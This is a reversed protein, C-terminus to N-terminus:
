LDMTAIRGGVEGERSLPGEAIRKNLTRLIEEYGEGPEREAQASIRGHLARVADFKAAAIKYAASETDGRGGVLNSFTQPPKLLYPLAYELAPPSLIALHGHEPTAITTPLLMDPKTSWNATIVALLCDIAALALDKLAVTDAHTAIDKWFRKNHALYNFYLSRAAAAETQRAIDNNDAELSSPASIRIEKSPGHFITALTNLVDPHTQRSPLWALPSGEWQVTTEGAPLLAKRPLSAMLHLDHKPSDAHAWRASLMDLARRLQDNVQKPMQSALFHEPYASAYTGIYNAAPGYLFMAELPDAATGPPQLYIVASRAQLGQTIMYRLAQSEAPAALGTASTKTSRLLESYFDLLCRHMLVDDKHDVMRLAAFELLGEKVGYAAEIEEHHSRTITNWDMAGVVPLWEMLRAQALTRQNKSLKISSPGSLSAAEFITGYVNKDGFIRKWVLGRGGAPVRADPHTQVERDVKLLDLLLKSAQSAIGTDSTCLWLRVLALMADLMSAVHAADTPNSTAKGLLNLMLRNYSIMHEGVGLGDTWPISGDSDEGLSLVDSYNAGDLLRILLNAAPTPDQQLTPLLGVLALLLTTQKDESLQNALVLEAEEFTRTDLPTTPDETVAKINSLLRTYIDGGAENTMKAKLRPKDPHCTNHIGPKHKSYLKVAPFGHLFSPLLLPIRSFINAEEPLFPM